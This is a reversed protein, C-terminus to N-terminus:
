AETQERLIDNHGAHRAFEQMMMLYIWRLSIAGLEPHEAPERTADLDVEAAIERARRSAKEYEAIVDEISEDPGVTFSDMGIMSGDIEDDSLGGLIRQFWKREAFAAHKILGVTTTLSPVLRRRADEESMGRVTAILESRAHDLMYELMARESSETIRTPLQM